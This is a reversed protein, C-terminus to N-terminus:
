YSILYKKGSNDGDITYKSAKLAQVVEEKLETKNEPDTELTIFAHKSFDNLAKYTKDKVFLKESGKRPRKRYMLWSIRAYNSIPFVFSFWFLAVGAIRYGFSGGVFSESISSLILSFFICIVYVIDPWKAKSAVPDYISGFLFVVTLGLTSSFELLDKADNNEQDMEYMLYLTNLTSVLLLPLLTGVFKGVGDIMLHFTVTYKPCYGKKKEYLYTIDPYPSLLDYKTMCDLSADVDKHVDQFKGDPEQIAANLRICHKQALVLNPRITQNGHFGSSLEIDATATILKFPFIEEEVKMNLPIKTQLTTRWINNYKGSTETRRFALTNDDKYSCDNFRYDFYKSQTDDDDDDDDTDNLSKLGRENLVYQVITGILLVGDDNDPDDELRKIMLFNRVPVKITGNSNNSGENPMKKHIIRQRSQDQREQSEIRM